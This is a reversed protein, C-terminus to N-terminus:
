YKNKKLWSPEASIESLIQQYSELRSLLVQDSPNPGHYFACGKADPTHKCNAFQCLGFYEQLDPYYNILEEKTIDDLSFSRIGPSDILRLNKYEVIESWSTTHQGKGMKGIEQSKLKIAGCTISQIIKSKGVGSQGLFIVSKDQLFERLADFNQQPLFRPSYNLNIATIEFCPIQLRAMREAEFDLDIGLKPDYQDMKNFIIIAPINWHYSRLLYRDLIGRKFAPVSVSSVIALVDCNAATVKKRGERMSIRFIENKRPIVETIVHGSEVKELIVYDGIVIEGEKLLLGLATASVIESEAILKCEFVRQSSRYVQALFKNKHALNIESNKNSITNRTGVFLSM